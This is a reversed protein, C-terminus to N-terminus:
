APGPSPESTWDILTPEGNQGAVMIKERPKNTVCCDYTARPYEKADEPWVNNGEYASRFEPAYWANNAASYFMSSM